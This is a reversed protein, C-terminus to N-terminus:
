MWILGGLTLGQPKNTFIALGFLYFGLNNSVSIFTEAV